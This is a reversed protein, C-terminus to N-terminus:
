LEFYFKPHDDVNKLHVPPFILKNESDNNRFFLRVFPDVSIKIQFLPGFHLRNDSIKTRIEIVVRINLSNM